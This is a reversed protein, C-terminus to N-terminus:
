ENMLLLFYVFLMFHIVSDFSIVFKNDFDHKFLVVIRFAYSLSFGFQEHKKSVIYHLTIYYYLIIYPLTAYSLVSLNFCDFNLLLFM